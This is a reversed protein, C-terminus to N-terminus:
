SGPRRRLFARRPDRSALPGHSRQRRRRYDGRSLHHELFIMLVIFAYRSGQEQLKLKSVGAKRNTWRIPTIAYSHGRVVAKLPIEVTLNFHHSVLPGVGEIVERRYAKFANTTDDYGHGFLLRIGWNVLRNMILKFRPYDYTAGGPMFRSGFACDYGAELLRHYAVLDDPHDSLDAMVIAVADGTFAELGSRVAFGFGNRYQNRLYRIGDDADALARVIAATRDTSADDVIVVEYDIRRLRASSPDGGHGDRRDVGGRQARPHRGLAEDDRRAAGATWQEVNYAHIDRLVDEIGFTLKWEPYDAEFAALDSVYWQHDGIRAEESLTYQLPQGAIRGCLEIAELMSVNSARGGGLNYVAAPKPDKHFAHFARVVDHAHINDRVQKGGYGFITYPQGTVTCKMLYALFGHLQAGAHQPGTLCGGRFCVTPMGFYRGYEQVLVDAAVKSAGFLSHTCHDISM